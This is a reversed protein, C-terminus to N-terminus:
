CRHQRSWQDAGAVFVDRPLLGYAIQALRAAALDALLRQLDEAEIVRTPGPKTLGFWAAM